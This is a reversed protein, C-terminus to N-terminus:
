NRLFRTYGFRGRGHGPLTPDRCGTRGFWRLAGRLVLGGKKWAVIAWFRGLGGEMSMVGGGVVVAALSDLRRLDRLLSTHCEIATVTSLARPFGYFGM